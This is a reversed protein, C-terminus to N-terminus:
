SLRVSGATGSKIVIKKGVRVRIAGRYSIIPQGLCLEICLALWVMKHCMPLAIEAVPLGLAFTPPFALKTSMRLTRKALQIHFACVGVPWRRASLFMVLVSDLLRNSSRCFSPGTVSAYKVCPTGVAVLFRTNDGLFPSCAVYQAVLQMKCCVLLLRMTKMQTQM